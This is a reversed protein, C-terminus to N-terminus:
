SDARRCIEVFNAWAEGQFHEWAVKWTWNGAETGPTNMRAETGLGLADQLPVMALQSPSNLALRILCASVGEGEERFAALGGPADVGWGESTDNDHTGTYVIREPSLADPHHPNDAGGDFGFQLVSMGKLGAERRLETVEPPIIGLDEAIIETAGAIDLLPRLLAMGPAPQWAGDRATAAEAPIAWAAEFARFHDIRVLDFQSCIRDMRMRWWTWDEAEHAAWDYLLTGWRQGDESFADPPVGAVVDEQFLHPRVWVDASDKAVFIPLDGFLQVGREAAYHRLIAWDRQFRVQNLIRGRVQPMFRAMAAAIAEPERDRLPAPWTFWPKEGHAEKLADYLGWDWAWHANLKLWARVTEDDPDADYTPDCMSVNNAFASTSAYPSGHIDPPNLPLVQWVTVGADALLDVFTFADPGLKGGPLSSIHCLIGVKAMLWPTGM